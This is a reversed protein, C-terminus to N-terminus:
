VSRNLGQLGDAKFHRPSADHCDQSCVAPSFGRQQLFYGTQNRGQGSANAEFAFIDGSQTGFGDGLAADGLSGFSPLNETFQRDPFVQLDTCKGHLVVGGALFVHSRTYPYKGTRFSRSDWIAWVRDPPSCCISAM